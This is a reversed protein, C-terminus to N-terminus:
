AGLDLYQSLDMLIEYRTQSDEDGFCYLKKDATQVLGM